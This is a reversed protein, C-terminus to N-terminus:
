LASPSSFRENILNRNILKLSSVSLPKMPKGKLVCVHIFKPSIWVTSGCLILGFGGTSSSRVDGKEHTKEKDDDLLQPQLGLGLKELSSNRVGCRRPILLFSLKKKEELFSQQFQLHM